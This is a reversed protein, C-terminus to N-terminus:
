KRMKEGQAGFMSGLMISTRRRRFSTRNGQKKQQAGDVIGHFVEGNKTKIPVIM